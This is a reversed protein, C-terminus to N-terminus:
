CCFTNSDTKECLETELYQLSRFMNKQFAVMPVMWCQPFRHSNYWPSMKLTLKFVYYKHILYSGPIWGLIEFLEDTAILIFLLPRLDTM